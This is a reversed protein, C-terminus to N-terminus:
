KLIENKYYNFYAKDRSKKNINEYNELLLAETIDNFNDVVLIPLDYFYEMATHKEIIPITGVYIAEWIRHCDISNGPPSIVYKYSKLKALYQKFSLKQREIDVFSKTTIIQFIEPRRHYNTSIEFNSYCLNNREINTQIIELLEKKNGHPWKENAIGIPIPQLKPHKIHCNMGYWKVLNKNDLIEIINEDVKQDANHTILKFPYNINPLVKTKFIQCWDTYLFITKPRKSLDIESKTEDIFDDCINKFANGTIIKNLLSNNVFLIDSNARAIPVFNNEQLFLELKSYDPTQQYCHADNELIIYKVTKLINQAGQLAYYEGGQMDFCFMDVKQINNQQCFSDITICEVTIKTQPVWSEEKHRFFSSVGHNHHTTQESNFSYFTKQENLEALGKETFIINKEDQLNHKCLKIGEPNCEFAYIKSDTYYDRLKIADLGDRSGAEFIINVDKKNIHKTFETNLYNGGSDIEHRSTIKNNM